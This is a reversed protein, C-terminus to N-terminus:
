VIVEILCVAMNGGDKFDQFLTTFTTQPCFLEIKDSFFVPAVVV